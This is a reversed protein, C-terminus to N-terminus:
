VIKIAAERVLKQGVLGHINNTANGLVREIYKSFLYNIVRSFELIESSNPIGILM